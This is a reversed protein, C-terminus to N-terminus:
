PRTTGGAPRADSRFAASAAGNASAEALVVVLVAHLGKADLGILVGGHDAAAHLGMLMLTQKTLPLEFRKRHLARM